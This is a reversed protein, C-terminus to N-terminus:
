GAVRSCRQPIWEAPSCRSAGENRRLCEEADLFSDLVRAVVQDGKDCAALAVPDEVAVRDQLVQREENDGTM